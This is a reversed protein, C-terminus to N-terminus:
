SAFILNVNLMGRFPFVRSFFIGLRTEHVETDRPLRQPQFFRSLAPAPIPPPYLDAETQLVSPAGKLLNECLVHGEGCQLFSLCNFVVAEENFYFVVNALVIVCLFFCLVSYGMCSLLLFRSLMKVHWYFPRGRFDLDRGQFLYSKKLCWFANM